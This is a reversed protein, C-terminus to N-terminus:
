AVTAAETPPTPPDLDTIGLASLIQAARSSGRTVSRKPQGAGLVFDVVRVTRLVQLPSASAAPATNGTTTASATRGASSARRGAGIKAPGGQAPRRWAGNLRSSIGTCTPGAAVLSGLERWPTRAMLM